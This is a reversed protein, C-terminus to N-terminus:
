DGRTMMRRHHLAEVQDEVQDEDEIIEEDEVQNEDEVQDEDLYGFAVVDVEHMATLIEKLHRSLGAALFGIGHKFTVEMGFSTVGIVTGNGCKRIISRCKAQEAEDCAEDEFHQDYGVAMEHLIAHSVDVSNVCSKCTGCGCGTWGYRHMDLLDACTMVADPTFNIGYEGRIPEHCFEYLLNYVEMLKDNDGSNLLDVIEASLSWQTWYDSTDGGSILTSMEDYKKALAAEHAEQREEMADMLAFFAM